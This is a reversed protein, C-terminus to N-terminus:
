RTLAGARTEGDGRLWLSVQEPQITEQIISVLEAQLRELDVEDRATAAFDALAQQADYKRRYFRRDIFDQVRIRLPNFLAAIALTSCTLETARSGDGYVTGSNKLISINSTNAGM